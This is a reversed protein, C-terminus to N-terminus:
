SKKLAELNEIRTNLSPHTALLKRVPYTLTRILKRTWRKIAFRSYPDKLSKFHKFLDICGDINECELASIEDAEAECYRSHLRTILLALPASLLKLRLLSFIFYSCGFVALGKYIHKYKIHALEHGILAKKEPDSLSNFWEESIIITNAFPISVAAANERGFSLMADRSMSRLRITVHEMDMQKQIKRVFVEIEESLDTLCLSEGGLFDHVDYIFRQLLSVKKETFRNKAIPRSHSVPAIILFVLIAIKNKRCTV